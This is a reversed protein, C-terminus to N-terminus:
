IHILSLFSNTQVEKKLWPIAGSLCAPREDVVAFLSALLGRTAGVDGEVKMALLSLDDNSIQGAMLAEVLCRRSADALFNVPHSLRNAVFSLVANRSSTAESTIEIDVQQVFRTANRLFQEVFISIELTEDDSCIIPFVHRFMSLSAVSITQHRMSLCM